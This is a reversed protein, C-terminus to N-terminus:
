LARLWAVFADQPMPRGFLYGQAVDCGMACLVEVVAETEVGEAVVRYGFRHALEIVARVIHRNGENGDLGDILTRDIKLEDAPMDKFSVLSSYGSGFDDISVRVGRDRLQALAPFSREPNRVVSDETIELVLDGPRSGWIPMSALLHPMLNGSDLVSPHINIAVPLRGWREPWEARQRQAADIAFWTIAELRTSKEAFPMFSGPALLGRTPNNWRLLAEAGCPTRTKLDVKPQYYLEFESRDLARDFEHEVAWLNVVDGVDSDRYTRFPVGSERAASLALEASRALSSADTGHEPFLALGIVPDLKVEYDDIPFSEGSIRGFKGAALEAHGQNRPDQLVIWFKKHQIPVISDGDRLAGQLKGRLLGSLRAAASPGLATGVKELQDVHVALLAMRGSGAACHEVANELARMAQAEGGGPTLVPNM